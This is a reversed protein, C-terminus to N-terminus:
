ETRYKVFFNEFYPAYVDKVLATYKSQPSYYYNMNM